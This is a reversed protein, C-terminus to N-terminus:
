DKCSELVLGSPAGRTITAFIEDRQEVSMASLRRTGSATTLRIATSEGTAACASTISTWKLTFNSGLCGTLSLGKDDVQLFGTSCTAGSAPNQYAVEFVPRGPSAPKRTAAEPPHASVLPAPDPSPAEAAPAPAAPSSGTPSAAPPGSSANAREAPTATAQTRAEFPADKQKELMLRITADPVGAERLAILADTSTDFSTDSYRIKLAITEPSLGAKMLRAVDENTIREAVAVQATFAVLLSIALKKM